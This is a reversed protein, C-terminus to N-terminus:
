LVGFQVGSEVWSVQCGLELEEMHLTLKENPSKSEFNRLLAGVSYQSIHVMAAYFTEFLDNRSVTTAGPINEFGVSFEPPVSLATSASANSFLLLPLGSDESASSGAESESGGTSTTEEEGSGALTRKVALISLKGVVNGEWYLEMVAQHFRAFRIM